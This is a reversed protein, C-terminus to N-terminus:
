EENISVNIEAMKELVNKEGHVDVSAAVCELYVTMNKEAKEKFKLKLVASDNGSPIITASISSKTGPTMPKAVFLWVLDEGGSVNLSIDIEESKNVYWTPVNVDGNIHLKGRKRKIGVAQAVTNEVVGGVGALAISSAVCTGLAIAVKTVADKADSKATVTEEKENGKNDSVSESAVNEDTKNGTEETAEGLTTGGDEAVEEKEPETVPRTPVPEDKFKYSGIVTYFENPMDDPMLYIYSLEDYGAVTEYVSGLWEPSYEHIIEKEGIFGRGEVSFASVDPYYDYLTGTATGYYTTGAPVAYATITEVGAGDGRGRDCLLSVVPIEDVDIGTVFLKMGGEGILKGAPEIRETRKGSSKLDYLYEASKPVILACDCNMYGSMNLGFVSIEGYEFMGNEGYDYAYIDEGVCFSINSGKYTDQYFLTNSDWSSDYVWYSFGSCTIEVGDPVVYVPIDDTVYGTGAGIIAAKALYAEEIDGLPCDIQALKGNNFEVITVGNSESMLVGEAEAKLSISALSIMIILGAVSANRNKKEGSLFFVLLFVLTMAAGVYYGIHKVPILLIFPTIFCGLALGNFNSIVLDGNITEKGKRAFISNVVAVFFGRKEVLQGVMVSFLVFASFSNIFRGDGSFFTCAIVSAGIGVIGLSFVNLSKGKISFVSEIYNNYKKAAETFEKKIYYMKVKLPGKHMFMTVLVNNIGILIIVRM